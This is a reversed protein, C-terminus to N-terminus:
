GLLAVYGISIVLKENCLIGFQGSEECKKPEYIKRLVENEAV